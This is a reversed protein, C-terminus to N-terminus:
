PGFSILLEYDDAGNPNDAFHIAIWDSQPVVVALDRGDRHVVRATSFDVAEPLFRTEGQNPLTSRAAPNWQVDNLFVADPCAWHKHEWRAEDKTIRLM